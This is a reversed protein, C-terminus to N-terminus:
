IEFIRAVPWYCLTYGTCHGFTLDFPCDYRESLEKYREIIVEDPADESVGLRHYYTNETVQAGGALHLSKLHEYQSHEFHFQRATAQLLIDEEDSIEGDAISVQLLMDFLMDLM